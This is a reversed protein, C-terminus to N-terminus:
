GNYINGKKNGAKSSIVKIVNPNNVDYEIQLVAGNETKYLEADNMLKKYDHGLILGDPSNINKACKEIMQELTRLEQTFPKSALPKVWRDKYEKRSAM